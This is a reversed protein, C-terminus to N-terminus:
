NAFLMPPNSPDFNFPIENLLNLHGGTEDIEIIGFKGDKSIAYIEDRYEVTHIIKMERVHFPGIQPNVLIFALTNCISQCNKQTATRVMTWTDREPHYKYLILAIDIVYLCQHAKFLIANTSGLRISAKETWTDSKTDYCYFKDSFVGDSDGGAVYIREDLEASVYRYKQVPM